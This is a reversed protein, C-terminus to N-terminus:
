INNRARNIFQEVEERFFKIDFPNEERCQKKLNYLQIEPLEIAKKLTSTIAEITPLPIIFGNHSDKVYNQIDSTPNTITPIGVTFAEMVKTPFGAHSVRNDPRIFLSYDAKELTELAEKHPVRGKFIISKDMKNLINKHSRFVKLYQEKTIGQIIYRFPINEDHLLNFAEILLDLKDKGIGIGPSGTYVFTRVKNSFYQDSVQWRELDSRVCFPWVVNNYGKYFRKMYHSAVIINGAKKAVYRIRFQTDFFRKINRDIRWGEWGYWETIDATVAINNKKGFAVLKHLAMAPYNYAIIMAIRKLGYHAAIDKISDISTTYVPYKRHPFPHRIDYTDFHDIKNKYSIDGNYDPLKGVLVTEYGLSNLLWANERVRVASANQEPFKFGGVYIIVNRM